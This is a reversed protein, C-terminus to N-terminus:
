PPAHHSRGGHGERGGRGCQRVSQAQAPRQARQLSHATPNSLPLAHRRLFSPPFAHAQARMVLCALCPPLSAPWCAPLTRRVTLAQLQCRWPAGRRSRRIFRKRCSAIAFCVEQYSVLQMAALNGHIWPRNESPLCCFIWRAVHHSCPRVFTKSVLTAVQVGTTLYATQGTVMSYQWFGACPLPQLTM